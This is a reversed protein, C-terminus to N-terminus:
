PFHFPPTFIKSYQCNSITKFRKLFLLAAYIYIYLAININYIICAM